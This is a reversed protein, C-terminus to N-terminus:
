TFFFFIRMVYEIFYSFKEEFDIVVCIREDIMCVGFACITVDRTQNFFFLFIKRFSVAGCNSGAKALHFALLLSLHPSCFNYLLVFRDLNFAFIKQKLVSQCLFLDLFKVFILKRFNSPPQYPTPPIDCHPVDHLKRPRAQIFGLRIKKQNFLRKEWNTKSFPKNM